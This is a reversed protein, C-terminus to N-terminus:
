RQFLPWWVRLGRLETSRVADGDTEQVTVCSEGLEALCRDSVFFNELKGFADDVFDIGIVVIRTVVGAANDSRQGVTLGHLRVLGM